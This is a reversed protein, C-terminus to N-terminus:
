IETELKKFLDILEKHSDIWSKIFEKFELEHKINFFKVCPREGKEPDWRYPMTWDTLKGTERDIYIEIDIMEILCDNLIVDVWFRGPANPDIKILSVYFKKSEQNM